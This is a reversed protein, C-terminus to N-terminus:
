SKWLKPISTYNIIQYAGQFARSYRSFAPVQEWFLKPPMEVKLKSSGSAFSSCNTAKQWPKLPFQIQELHQCSNLMCSLNDVKSMDFHSLDIRQSQSRYFMYNTDKVNKFAGLFRFDTMNQGLGVFMNATSVVREMPSNDFTISEINPSMWFMSEMSNFQSYNSLNLKSLNACAGFMGTQIHVKFDNGISLVEKEQHSAYSYSNYFELEGWLHVIYTGAKEYSHRPKDKSKYAYRNVQGDGWDVM